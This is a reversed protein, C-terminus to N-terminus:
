SRQSDVKKRSLKVTIAVGAAHYFMEVESSRLHLRVNMADDLVCSFSGSTSDFQQILRDSFHDCSSPACASM